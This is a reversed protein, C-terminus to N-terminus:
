FRGYVEFGGGKDKGFSFYFGYRDLRFFFIKQLVPVMFKLRM